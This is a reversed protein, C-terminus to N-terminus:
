WRTASYVAVGESKGTGTAPQLVRWRDAHSNEADTIQDNFATAMQRWVEQLAPSVVNRLTDTWHRSMSAVFNDPTVLM